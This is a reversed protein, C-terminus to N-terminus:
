PAEGASPVIPIEEALNAVAGVVSTVMQRIGSDFSRQIDQDSGTVTAEVGKVYFHREAWLGTTTRASLKLAVDAEYASTFYNLDPEVFLKELTGVLIITSPGAQARDRLVKFGAGRLESVLLNELSSRADGSCFIKAIPSGYGNKKMGCRDEHRQDAFPRVLVVERGEGRRSGTAVAGQEPFVITADAAGCGPLVGTALVM